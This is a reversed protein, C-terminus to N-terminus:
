AAAGNLAPTSDRPEVDEARVVTGAPTADAPIQRDSRRDHRTGRRTSRVNRIDDLDVGPPLLGLAVYAEDPDIELLKVVRSFLEPDREIARRGHELNQVGAGDLYTGDSLEGIRVALRGLSWGRELRKRKVLGGFDQRSM